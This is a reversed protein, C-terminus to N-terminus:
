PFRRVFGSIVEWRQTTDPGTEAFSDMMEGLESKMAVFDRKADTVTSFFRTHDICGYINCSVPIYSDGRKLTLGAGDVHEEDRLIVEGEVGIRGINKGHNYLVWNNM